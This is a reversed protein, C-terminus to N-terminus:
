SDTTTKIFDMVTFDFVIAMSYQNFIIFYHKSQFLLIQYYALVQLLILMLIQAEMFYNKILCHLSIPVLHAVHSVLKDQNTLEQLVSKIAIKQIYLIIVLKALLYILVAKIM